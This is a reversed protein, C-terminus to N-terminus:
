SSSCLHFSFIDAGAFRHVFCDFCSTRCQATLTRFDLKLDQCQGLLAEKSQTGCRSLDLHGPLVACRFGTRLLRLILRLGLLGLCFLRRFGLRFLGPGLLCLLGSGLLRRLLLRLDLGHTGQGLQAILDGLCYLGLCLQCRGIEGFHDLGHFDLVEGDGRLHPFIGQHQENLATIQADHDSAPAFGQVAQLYEGAQCGVPAFALIDPHVQVAAVEPLLAGLGQFFQSHLHCLIRDTGSAAGSQLGHVGIVAPDNMRRYRTHFACGGGGDSLLGVTPYDDARQIGTFGLLIAPASM